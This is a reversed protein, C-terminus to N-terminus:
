KDYKLIFCHARTMCSGFRKYLEFQLEANKLNTCANESNDKKNPNFFCKKCSTTSYTTFDTVKKQHTIEM